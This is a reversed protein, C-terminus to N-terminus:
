CPAGHGLTLCSKAHTARYLQSIAENTKKLLESVMWGVMANNTELLESVMWGIM